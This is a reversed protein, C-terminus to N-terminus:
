KKGSENHTGVSQLVMVYSVCMSVLTSFGELSADFLGGVLLTSRRNSRQIILIILKQMCLPATYWQANYTAQCIDTSSDIIDQGIYNGLFIFYLHLFLIYGCMILEMIELSTVANILNFFSLSMSPVVLVLLVVYMTSFSNTWINALDLARRHVFVANIINNYFTSQKIDKPMPQLNKDFIHEMRYSSIRFLACIHLVYAILITAIAMVTITGAYVTFFIHTLIAYFYTEEDVFYEVDVITQQRRSENMPIIVDLMHPVWIILVLGLSFCTSTLILFITHFKANNAYKQIVELEAQTKLMNWDYRVRDFIYKIKDSLLIGANYKVIFICTLIISMLMKTFTGISYQRVFFPIFQCTVFSISLTQFFINQVKKFTSIQYPWLGLSLLLIKNLKYYREGAFDM